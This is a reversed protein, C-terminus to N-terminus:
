YCPRREGCGPKRNARRGTILVPDNLVARCFAVRQQEGGSLAPPFRSRASGCGSGRSFIGRRRRPKRGWAAWMARRWCCARQPRHTPSSTTPRSSSASTGGGFPPWRPAPERRDPAPRPVVAGRRGASGLCGLLNLLTASEPGPDGSWRWSSGPALELDVRRLVELVREDPTRFQKVLRSARLLAPDATVTEPEAASRRPRRCASSGSPRTPAPLPAWFSPSGWPSPWWSPRSSSSGSDRRPRARTSPRVGLVALVPASSAAARASPSAERLVEGAAPPRHRRASAQDRLRPHARLDRCGRHEVALAESSATRDRHHRGHAVLLVGYIRRAAAGGRGPGRRQRGGGGAPHPGRARRPRRRRGLGSRRRQEPRRSRGRWRGHVARSSHPRLRALARARGRHRGRCLPRAGHPAAGM